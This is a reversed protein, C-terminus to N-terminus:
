LPGVRTSGYRSTMALRNAMGRTCMRGVRAEERETDLQDSLADSLADLIPEVDDVIVCAPVWADGVRIEIQDLEGADGPDMRTPKCGPYHAARVEHEDDDSDLWTAYVERATM